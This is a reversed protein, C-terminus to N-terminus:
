LMLEDRSKEEEGSSSGAISTLSISGASTRLTLLKGGAGLSGILRSRGSKDASEIPLTSRVAGASTRADIRLNAAPDLAVSITGASTKLVGGRENGPTFSAQISGGSTAAEVYDALADLQLSGGSTRIRVTGTVDSVAISGGSSRAVLDGDVGRAAISGGSTRLEANAGLQEIVISGGATNADVLAATPVRVVFKLGRLARSSAAAETRRATVRALNASSKFDFTLLDEIADNDASIVISVGETRDGIIEIAGVDTDLEFRGDNPLALERQLLFEARAAVAGLLLAAGLVPLASRIWSPM